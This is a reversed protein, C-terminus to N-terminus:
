CTQMEEEKESGQRERIWKSRSKGNRFRKRKWKGVIAVNKEISLSVDGKQAMKRRTM